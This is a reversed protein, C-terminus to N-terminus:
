HLPLLGVQRDGSVNVSGLLHQQQRVLDTRGSREPNRTQILRHWEKWTEGEQRREGLHTGRCGERDKRRFGREQAATCTPGWMQTKLVCTSMKSLHSSSITCLSCSSALFCPSAPRALLLRSPAQTDCSPHSLLLAHDSCAKVSLLSYLSM